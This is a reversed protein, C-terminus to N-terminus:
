NEYVMNLYKNCLDELDKQFLQVDEPKLSIEIFVDGTVRKKIDPEEANNDVSNENKSRFHFLNAM